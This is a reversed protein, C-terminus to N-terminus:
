LHNGAEFKVNKLYKSIALINDLEEPNNKHWNKIWSKKRCLLYLVEHPSISVGELTSNILFEEICSDESLHRKFNSNLFITIYDLLYYELYQSCFVNKIAHLIADHFINDQEFELLQEIFRIICDVLFNDYFNNAAMLRLLVNNLFLFKWQYSLQSFVNYQLIASIFLSYEFKIYNSINYDIQNIIESIFIDPDDNNQLHTIILNDLGYVYNGHGATYPHPMNSNHDIVWNRYFTVYSNKDIACLQWCLIKSYNELSKIPLINKDFFYKSTFNLKKFFSYQFIKGVCISKNLIEELTDDHQKLFEIVVNPDENDLLFVDLIKSLSVDNSISFDYNM